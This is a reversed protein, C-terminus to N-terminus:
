EWVVLDYPLCVTDSVLSFPLDLLALPTIMLGAPWGFETWYLAVVGADVCTAPYIPQWVHGEVRVQWTACGALLGCAAVAALLLRKM